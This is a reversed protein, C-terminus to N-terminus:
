YISTKNEGENWVFLFDSYNSNLMHRRIQDQTLSGSPVFQGLAHISYGLQTFYEFLSDARSGFDQLAQDDVEVFFTPHFRKITERAGALVRMEAGQVDIKILSVPPWERGELLEDISVGNTLVGTQDLSLKHDGPHNPNIKLYYRGSAESAAMQITEVVDNLGAKTLVRNLRAYNTSEPEVAFVEGGETVWRGFKLTFFGVNAGVDIVVTGPKVYRHLQNIPGAEFLLKYAYYVLEFLDRGWSTSFIGTQSVLKFLILFSNQLSRNM